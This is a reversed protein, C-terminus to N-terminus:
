VNKNRSEEEELLSLLKNKLPELDNEYSSWLTKPDVSLYDHSIKHRMGIIDSWPVGPYLAQADRPVFCAAEGIIEFCREAARQTFLDGLFQSESTGGLHEQLEQIADLMDQVRFLWGKEGSM